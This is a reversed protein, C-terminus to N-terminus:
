IPVCDFPQRDVVFTHIPHVGGYMLLIHARMEEFAAEDRVKVGQRGVYNSYHSARVDNLFANFPVFPAVQGPTPKYDTHMCATFLLVFTGLAALRGALRHRPPALVTLIVDNFSPMTDRSVDRKHQVARAHSM